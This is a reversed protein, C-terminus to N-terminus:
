RRQYPKIRRMPSCSVICRMTHSTSGKMSLPQRIEYNAANYLNKSKFAAEDILGYRPDNRDIIHQEVLQM